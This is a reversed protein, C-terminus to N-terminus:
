AELGHASVDVYCHGAGHYDELWDIVALWNEVTAPEPKMDSSTDSLIQNVLELARIQAGANSTHVSTIIGPIRFHEATVIWVTAM